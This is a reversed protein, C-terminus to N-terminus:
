DGGGEDCVWGLGNGGGSGFLDCNDKGPQAGVYLDRSIVILALSAVTIYSIAGSLSVTNRLGQKEKRLAQKTNKDM